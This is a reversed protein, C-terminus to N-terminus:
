LSSAKLSAICLAIAPTNGFAMDHSGCKAHITLGGNTRAIEWDFGEPALTLAADISATFRPPYITQRPSRADEGTELWWGSNDERWGYGSTVVKAPVKDPYALAFIAKDLARDPGEARELAAILEDM